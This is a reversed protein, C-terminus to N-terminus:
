TVGILAVGAVHRITVPDTLLVATVECAEMESRRRTLRDDHLAVQDIMTDLM